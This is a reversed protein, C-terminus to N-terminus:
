ESFVGEEMDKFFRALEEIGGQCKHLQRLEQFADQAGTRGAQQELEAIRITLLREVVAWSKDQMLQQLQAKELKNMPVSM